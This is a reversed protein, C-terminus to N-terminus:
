RNQSYRLHRANIKFLIQGSRVHAGEDVFIREIYGDVQPRIEIDKSGELSASYEQYVTSPMQTIALVPLAQPPQVNGAESASSSSCATLAAVTLTALAVFLM